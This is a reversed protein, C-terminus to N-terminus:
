TESVVINRGGQKAMYLARDVREYARDIPNEECKISAIGFSAKVRISEGDISFEAREILTRLKEAVKRAEEVSTNPLLFIFEEGGWRCLKDVARLNKKLLDAIEKLIKDGIPHGYDDNIKKFHDIDMLVVSSRINYRCILRSEEEAFEFWKRRNYLGTLTDFFALRQLEANKEELEKQQRKIEEEQFLNKRTTNWLILSLYMGFVIFTIGNVRNTLLIAPEKQVIGILLLYATLVVSFIIFASTPRLLFIVALGLCLVLFPTINTTVHQDITVLSIAMASLSVIFAYQIFVAKNSLHNQRKARSIIIALALSVILHISHVVIIGTRWVAEKGSSPETIWFMVVYAIHMPIVVLALYYM